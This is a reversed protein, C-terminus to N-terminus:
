QAAGHSYVCVIKYAPRRVPWGENSASSTLRVTDDAHVGAEKAIAEDALFVAKDVAQKLGSSINGPIPNGYGGPIVAGCLNRLSLSIIYPLCM